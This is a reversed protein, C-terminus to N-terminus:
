AEIPYWTRLQIWMTMGCNCAGPPWLTEHDKLIAVIEPRDSDRNAVSIAKITKGTGHVKFRGVRASICASWLKQAEKPQIM